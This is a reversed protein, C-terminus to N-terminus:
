SLYQVLNASVGLRKSYDIALGDSEVQWDDLGQSALQILHAQELQLLITYRSPAGLSLDSFCELQVVLQQINFWCYNDFSGIVMSCELQNIM